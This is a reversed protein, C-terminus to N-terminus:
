TMYPFYSIIASKQKRDDRTIGMLLRMTSLVLVNKEGKFKSKTTCLALNDEKQKWPMSNEFENRNRADKLEDPLGVRNSFLAGVSIFLWNLTSISTYLRDMSIKEDRMSSTPMSEVM